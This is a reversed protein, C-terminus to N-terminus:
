VTFGLEGVANIDDESFISLDHDRFRGITPSPKPIAYIKDLDYRHPKIGLFTILRDIETIPSTCIDEYSM